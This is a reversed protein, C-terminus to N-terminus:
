GGGGWKFKNERQVKIERKSEEKKLTEDANEGKKNDRSEYKKGRIVGSVNEGTPL